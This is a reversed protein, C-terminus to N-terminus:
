ICNSGRPEGSKHQLDKQELAERRRRVVLVPKVGLMQRAVCMWDDGM